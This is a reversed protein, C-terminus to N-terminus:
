SWKFWNENRVIGSSKESLLKESENAIRSITQNSKDELKLDGLDNINMELIKSKKFIPIFDM